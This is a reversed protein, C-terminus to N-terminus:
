VKNKIYLGTKIPKKTHWNQEFTVFGNTGEIRINQVGFYGKLSYIIDNETCGEPLNAIVIEKSRNDIQYLSKDYYKGKYASNKHKSYSKTSSKYNTNVQTLQKNFISMLQNTVDEKLTQYLYTNEFATTVAFLYNKIKEISDNKPDENRTSIKGAKLYLDYLAEAEEYLPILVKDLSKKLQVKEEEKITRAFSAYKSLLALRRQISKELNEIEQNKLQHQEEVLKMKEEQDEKKAEIAENAAALSEATDFTTPDEPDYYPEVIVFRNNFVASRSRM